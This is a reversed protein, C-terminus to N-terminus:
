VVSKRDGGGERSRQRPPSPYKSKKTPRPKGARLTGANGPLFPNSERPPARYHHVSHNVSQNVQNHEEELVERMVEELNARHYKRQQQKATRLLSALDGRQMADLVANRLAIRRDEIAMDVFVIWNNFTLVVNANRWRYAIRGFIQNNRRQEEYFKKWRTFGIAMPRKAIRMLTKSGKAAMEREALKRDRIISRWFDWIAMITRRYVTLAAKKAIRKHEAKVAAIEHWARAMPLVGRLNYRRRFTAVTKRYHIQSQAFEYVSRFAHIITKNQWVLVADMVLSRNYLLDDVCDKFEDIKLKMTVVGWKRKITEHITRFHKIEALFFKWGKWATYVKYHIRRKKAKRDKMMIEKWEAFALRVFDGTLLHLFSSCKEGVKAWLERLDDMFDAWYGWIRDRPGHEKKAALLAANHVKLRKEKKYDSYMSLANFGRVMGMNLWRGLTRGVVEKFHAAEDTFKVWTMWCKLFCGSKFFGALRKMKKENKDAQVKKRAQRGRALRQIKVAAWTKAAKDKEKLLDARAKRAQKGKWIAQMKSAALDHVEDMSIRNGYKHQMRSYYVKAGKMRKAIHYAQRRRWAAQMQVAAYTEIQEPRMGKMGPKMHGIFQLYQVLAKQRQVKKQALYIRIACQIIVAARSEQAHVWLKRKRWLSRRGLRSRYATQVRLAMAARRSEAKKSKIEIDYM